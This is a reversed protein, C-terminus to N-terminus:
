VALPEFQRRIKKLAGTEIQRVRERTIGLATGLEQLTKEGYSGIGFRQRIVYAERKNLGGIAKEILGKMHQKEVVEVPEGFTQQELMCLLDFSEGPVLDADLSAIAQSLTDLKRLSAESIGTQAALEATSPTRGHLQKFRERTKRVVGFQITQRYPIRVARNSRALHRSMALRIWYTAYTSFRFGLRHDFREVAKMLGINGEQILDVLEQPDSSYQRALYIVLGIHFEVIRNRVKQWERYLGCAQHVIQEFEDCGIAYLKEFSEEALRRMARDGAFSQERFAQNEALLSDLRAVQTEIFLPALRLKCFVESLATRRQQTMEHATGHQRVAEYLDVLSASLSQKLATDTPEDAADPFCPRDDLEKIDDPKMPSLKHFEFETSAERDDFEIENRDTQSSSNLSQAKQFEDLLTRASGPFKSITGVLNNSVKFMKLQLLHEDEPKLGNLRRIEACYADFSSREQTIDRVSPNSEPQITSAIKAHDRVVGIRDKGSRSKRFSFRGAHSTSPSQARCLNQETGAVMWDSDCSDQATRQENQKLIASHCIAGISISALTTIVM